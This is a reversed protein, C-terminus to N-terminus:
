EPIIIKRINNRLKQYAHVHMIKTCRSVLKGKDESVYLDKEPCIFRVPLLLKRKSVTCIM